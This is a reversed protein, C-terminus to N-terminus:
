RKKLIAIKIEFSFLVPSLGNLTSDTFCKHSKKFTLLVNVSITKLLNKKNIRTKEFLIKTWNKKEFPSHSISLSPAFHIQSPNIWLLDSFDNFKLRKKCKKRIRVDLRWIIWRLWSRIADGLTARVVNKFCQLFIVGQFFKIKTQFFNRKLIKSQKQPHKEQFILFFLRCGIHLLLSLNLKHLRWFCNWVLWSTM